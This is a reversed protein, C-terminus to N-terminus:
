VRCSRKEDPAEERKVRKVDWSRVEKIQAGGGQGVALIRSKHVRVNYGRAVAEDRAAVVVRLGLGPDRKAEARLLFHADVKEVVVRGIGRDLFVARM